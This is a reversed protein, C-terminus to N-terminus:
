SDARLRGSVEDRVLQQGLRKTLHLVLDDDVVVPAGEEVYRDRYTVGRGDPIYGRKAYLRQAQNYGPNLGVGIGAVGSRRSIEEEAGIWCDLLLAREDSDQCCM